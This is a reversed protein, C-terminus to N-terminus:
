VDTSKKMLLFNLKLVVIWTSLRGQQARVARVSWTSARSAASGVKRKRARSRPLPRPIAATLNMTPAVASKAIVASMRLGCTVVAVGGGIYISWRRSRGLLTHRLTKRQRAHFPRQQQCPPPAQNPVWEWQSTTPQATESAGMEITSAPLWHPLRHCPMSRATPYRPLQKLWRFWRRVQRLDPNHTRQERLYVCRQTLHASRCQLTVRTQVTPLWAREWM